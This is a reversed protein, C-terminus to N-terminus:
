AGSVAATIGVAIVIATALMLAVALGDRVLPDRGADHRRTASGDLIQGM